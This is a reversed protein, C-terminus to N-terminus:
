QAIKHINEKGGNERHGKQFEQSDSEPKALSTRQNGSQKEGIKQKKTKFSKSM